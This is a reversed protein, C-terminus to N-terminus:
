VNFEHPMPRSEGIFLFGHIYETCQNQQNLSMSCSKSAVFIPCAIIQLTLIRIDSWQRKHRHPDLSLSVHRGLDIPPACTMESWQVGVLSGKYKYWAEKPASWTCGRTLRPVGESMGWCVRKLFPIELASCTHGTCTFYQVASNEAISCISMPLMFFQLLNNSDDYGESYDSSMFSVSSCFTLVNCQSFFLALIARRPSGDPQGYSLERELEM